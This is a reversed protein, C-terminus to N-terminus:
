DYIHVVYGTGSVLVIVTVVTIVEEKNQSSHPHTRGREMM